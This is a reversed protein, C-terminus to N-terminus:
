RHRRRRRTTAAVVFLDALERAYASPDLDPHAALHAPAAELAALITVAMPRTHFAPFEGEAQGELLMSEIEIIWTDREAGRPRISELDPGAHHLRGLALVDVSGSSTHEVHAEILRRLADAYSTAGDVHAELAAEFRAELHDIVSGLLESKSGFHYSILPPSIGARAAIRAFTAAALGHEAIVEVAAAIIQHRRAQEVFGPQPRPTGPDATM